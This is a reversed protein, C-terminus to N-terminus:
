GRKDFLSGLSVGNKDGAKNYFHYNEIQETDNPYLKTFFQKEEKTVGAAEVKKKADVPIANLNKNAIIPNYNGFSNTSIKM